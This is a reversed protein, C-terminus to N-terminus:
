PALGLPVNFVNQASNIVLSIVRFGNCGSVDSKRYCICFCIAEVATAIGYALCFLKIPVESRVATQLAQIVLTSNSWSRKSKEFAM